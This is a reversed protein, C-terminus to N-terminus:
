ARGKGYLSKMGAWVLAGHIDTGLARAIDEPGKGLRLVFEARKSSDPTIGRLWWAGISM